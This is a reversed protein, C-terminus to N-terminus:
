DEYAALSYASEDGTTRERRRPAAQRPPLADSTMRAASAARAEEDIGESKRLRILLMSCLALAFVGVAVWFITEPRTAATRYFVTGFLIPGLISSSLSSLVSLCAFLRGADRPSAHALALSQIAASAGGGLCSLATAALFIGSAGGNLAMFIYAIM